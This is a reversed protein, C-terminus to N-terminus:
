QICSPSFPEAASKYIPLPSGDAVTLINIEHYDGCPRWEGGINPNYSSRVVLRELFPQRTQEFEDGAIQLREPALRRARCHM